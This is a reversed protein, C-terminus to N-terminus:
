ILNTVENLIRKIRIPSIGIKDLVNPTNFLEKILIIDNEIILEKEQKSITTLATIPYLGFDDINKGIGNDKPYDWSLLKLGVCEAYKIADKTFKTNTVLWGQAM